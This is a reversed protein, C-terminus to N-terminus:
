FEYPTFVGDNTWFEAMVRHVLPVIDDERWPGGYPESLYILSAEKLKKSVTTFYIDKYLDKITADFDDRFKASDAKSDIIRGAFTLLYPTLDYGRRKLFEEKMLPTWTPDGAEYSDFYVHTFGTGILDGLHKQM